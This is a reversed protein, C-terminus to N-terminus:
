RVRVDVGPFAECMRSAIKMLDLGPGAPLTPDLTKGPRMAQLYYSEGPLLDRAIQLLDQETHMGPCVTTRFEHAIDYSQLLRFSRRCNEAIASSGTRAVEDYRSWPFKIDMAVYDVLGDRLMQELMRPHAGNTDLKIELGLAKISALFAPLDPHVTPEGGTVVVGDLMRLRTKLMCLVEQEDLASPTQTSLLEPNHCYACRFPCGQTFVIMATHGPFDLLTLPQIGAIKM